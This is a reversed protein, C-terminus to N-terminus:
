VPMRDLWCSQHDQHTQRFTLLQLYYLNSNCIVIPSLM